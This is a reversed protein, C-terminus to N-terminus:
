PLDLAINGQSGCQTAYYACGQGLGLSPRLLHQMIVEQFEATDYNNRERRRHTERM